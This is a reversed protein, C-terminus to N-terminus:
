MVSSVMAGKLSSGMTLRGARAPQGARGVGAMAAVMGDAVGSRPVRDSYQFVGPLYSYGGPLFDRKSM